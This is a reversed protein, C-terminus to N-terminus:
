KRIQMDMCNSDVIILRQKELVICSAMEQSNQAKCLVFMALTVKGLNTFNMVRLDLTVVMILM